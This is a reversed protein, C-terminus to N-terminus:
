VSRVLYVIHEEGGLRGFSSKSAPLFVEEATNQKAKRLSYKCSSVRYFYSLEWNRRYKANVFTWDLFFKLQLCVQLPLTSHWHIFHPAPPALSPWGNAQGEASDGLCCRCLSYWFKKMIIVSISCCHCRCSQDFLFYGKLGWCSIGDPSQM